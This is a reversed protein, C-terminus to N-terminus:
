PSRGDREFIGMKVGVVLWDLRFDLQFGLLEDLRVRGVGCLGDSSGKVVNGWERGRELEKECGWMCFHRGLVYSIQVGGKVGGKVGGNSEVGMGEARSEVSEAMSEAGSEAGMAM